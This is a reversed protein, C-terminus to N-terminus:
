NPDINDRLDNVFKDYDFEVIKQTLKLVNDSEFLVDLTLLEYLICGLSWIDQQYSM